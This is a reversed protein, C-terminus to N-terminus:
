GEYGNDILWREIAKPDDKQIYTVRGQNAPQKDSGVILTNVIGAAFNPDLHKDALVILGSLAPSAESRWLFSWFGSPSPPTSVYKAAHHNAGAVFLVPLRQTSALKLEAHIDDPALDLCDYGALRFYGIHSGWNHDGRVFALTVTQQRPASPDAARLISTSRTTTYLAGGSLVAVLPRSPPMRM